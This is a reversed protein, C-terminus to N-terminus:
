AAPDEQGEPGSSPSSTPPISPLRATLSWMAGHVQVLAPVQSPHVHRPEWPRGHRADCWSAHRGPDRAHSECWHADAVSNSSFHECCVVCHAEQRSTWTYHCDVCHALGTKGYWGDHHAKFCLPCSMDRKPPWRRCTECISPDHSDTM